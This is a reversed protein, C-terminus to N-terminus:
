DADSGAENAVPSRAPADAPVVEVEAHLLLPEFFTGPLESAWPDQLHRLVGYPVTVRFSVTGDAETWAGASGRGAGADLEGARLNVGPKLLGGLTDGPAGTLFCVAADPPLACAAIDDLAYQMRVIATAAEARVPQNFRVGRVEIEIDTGPDIGAFFARAVDVKGLGARLIAGAPHGAGMELRTGGLAAFVAINTGELRTSPTPAGFASTVRHEVPEGGRQWRVTIVPSVSDDVLLLAPGESGDVPRPTKVQASQGPSGLFGPDEGPGGQAAVVGLGAVCAAFVWARGRVGQRM